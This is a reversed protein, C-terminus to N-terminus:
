CWIIQQTALRLNGLAIAACPKCLRGSPKPPVAAAVQLNIVEPSRQADRGIGEKLAVLCDELKERSFRMLLHGPLLVQWVLLRPM